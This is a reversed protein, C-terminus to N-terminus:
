SIIISNHFDALGELHLFVTSLSVFCLAFHPLTWQVKIKWSIKPHHLLQMLM